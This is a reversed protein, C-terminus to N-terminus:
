QIEWSSLVNCLGRDRTFSTVEGTLEKYIEFHADHLTSNVFDVQCLDEELQLHPIIFNRYEIFIKQLEEFFLPQINETIGKTSADDVQQLLTLIQENFKGLRQHQIAVEDCQELPIGRVKLFPLVFTDTNYVHIDMLTVFLKIYEVFSSLHQRSIQNKRFKDCFIVLQYFSRRIVNHAVLLREPWLVKSHRKKKIKYLCIFTLSIVCGSILVFFKTWRALASQM